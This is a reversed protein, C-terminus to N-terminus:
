RGYMMFGESLNDRVCLSRLRRDEPLPDLIFITSASIASLHGAYSSSVVDPSTGLKIGKINISLLNSVDAADFEGNISL